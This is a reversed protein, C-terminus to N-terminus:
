ACHVDEQRTGVLRVHHKELQSRAFVEAFAGEEVAPFGIRRYTGRFAIGHFHQGDAIVLEVFQQGLRLHRALRKVLCCIEVLLFVDLEPLLPLGSIPTMQCLIQNSIQCLLVRVSRATKLMAAPTNATPVIKPILSMSSAFM